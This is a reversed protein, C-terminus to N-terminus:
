RSRECSEHVKLRSTFSSILIKPLSRDQSTSNVAAKGILEQHHPLFLNFNARVTRHVCFKRCIYRYKVLIMFIPPGTFSKPLAPLIKPSIDTHLNRQIDRLFILLTLQKIALQRPQMKTNCQLCHTKYTKHHVAILQWM